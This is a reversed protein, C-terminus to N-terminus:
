KSDLFAAMSDGKCAVYAGTEAKGIVTYDFKSLDIKNTIEEESIDLGEEEAEKKIRSSEKQIYEEKALDVRLVMRDFEETRLSLFKSGEHYIDYAKKSLFNFVDRKRILSASINNTLKIRKGMNRLDSFMPDKSDFYLINQYSVGFFPNEPKDLNELENAKTYMKRGAKGYFFANGNNGLKCYQDLYIGYKIHCISALTNFRGKPMKLLEKPDYNHSKCIDKIENNDSIANSIKVCLIVITAVLSLIVTKPYKIVFNGISASIVEIGTNVSKPFFTIANKIM